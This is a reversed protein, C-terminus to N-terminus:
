QKQGCKIQVVRSSEMSAFMHLQTHLFDYNQIHVFPKFNPLDAIKGNPLFVSDDYSASVVDAILITHDGPALTEKLRCEIHAHCEGVAVPSVKQSKQRTFGSRDFKNEGFNQWYSAIVIQRFLSTDPFNIVFEGTREINDLSHQRKPSHLLALAMVPPNLSVPNCWSFPAVHDTGDENKTSCLIPKSPQLVFISNSLEDQTMQRKM